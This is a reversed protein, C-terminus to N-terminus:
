AAPGGSATAAITSKPGGFGHVSGYCHHEEFYGIYLRRVSRVM